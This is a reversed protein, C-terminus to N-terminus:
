EAGQLARLIDVGGPASLGLDLLTAPDIQGTVGRAAAAEAGLDRLAQMWQERPLRRGARAMAIAAAGPPVPPLPQLPASPKDGSAPPPPEAPGDGRKLLLVHAHQNAGRDVLSIENVVLDRIRHIPKRGGREREMTRQWVALADAVTTVM